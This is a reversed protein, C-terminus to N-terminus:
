IGRLPNPYTIIKFETKIETKIPATAPPSNKSIKELTPNSNSPSNPKPPPSVRRGIQLM